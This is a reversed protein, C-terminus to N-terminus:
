KQMTDGHELDAPREGHDVGVGVGAHGNGASACGTAALLVIASLALLFLKMCKM